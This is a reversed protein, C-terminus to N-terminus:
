LRGQEEVAWRLSSCQVLMYQRRASFRRLVADYVEPLLIGNLRVQVKVKERVVNKGYLEAVLHDPVVLSTGRGCKGGGLPGRRGWVALAEAVKNRLEGSLVEGRYCDWRGSSVVACLNDWKYRLSYKNRNRLEPCKALIMGWNCGYQLVGGVLAEVEQQSYLRSYGNEGLQAGVPQWAPSQQNLPVPVVASGPVQPVCAAIPAPPPPPPPAPLPPLAPPPPPALCQLANIRAQLDLPPLSRGTTWGQEAYKVLARWKQMIGGETRRVLQPRSAKVAAWNNEGYEEVGSVLAELEEPSFFRYRRRGADTSAPGPTTGAEGGEEAGGYGGAVGGEDLEMDAGAAPDPGEAEASDQPYWGAGFQAVAAEAAARLQVSTVEAPEAAAAAADVVEAAEDEEVAPAVLTHRIASPEGAAGATTGALPVLGLPSTLARAMGRGPHSLGGDLVLSTGSGSGDAASALAAAGSRQGQQHEGRDVEGESTATAAATETRGEHSSPIDGGSSSTRGGSSSSTSSTGMTLDVLDSSRGGGAGAFGGIGGGGGGGCDVVIAAGAAPIMAAAPGQTWIFGPPHQMVMHDEAPGLEIKVAILGPAPSGKDEENVAESPEPGWGDGQSGAAVEPMGAAGVAGVAGSGGGGNRIPSGGAVVAARGAVLGTAAPQKHQHRHVVHQIGPTIAGAAAVAVAPQLIPLQPAPPQLQLEPASSLQEPPAHAAATAIAAAATSVAVLSSMQSAQQRQQQQVHCNGAQLSLPTTTSGRGGGPQQQVRGPDSLTPNSGSRLPPTGCAGSETGTAAAVARGEVARRAGGGGDGSGGGSRPLASSPAATAAATALVWRATPQRMGSPAAAPRGGSSGRGSTGFATASWPHKGFREVYAVLASRELTPYVDYRNYAPDRMIVRSLPCFFTRPIGVTISLLPRGEGGDDDGPVAGCHRVANALWSPLPQLAAAAHVESLRARKAPPTSLTELEAMPPLGTGPRVGYQQQYTEFPEREMPSEDDEADPDQVPDSLLQYSLPCVFSFPVDTHERFFLLVPEEGLPGKLTQQDM